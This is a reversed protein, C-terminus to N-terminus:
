RLEDEKHLRRKVFGGVVVFFSFGLCFCGFIDGYKNYFTSNISQLIPIEFIIFGAGYIDESEEGFFRRVQGFSDIWCSLGNNCSRVM